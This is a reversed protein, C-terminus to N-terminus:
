FSGSFSDLRNATPQPEGYHESECWINRDLIEKLFCTQFVITLWILVRFSDPTESLTSKLM